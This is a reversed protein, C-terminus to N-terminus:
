TNEPESCELIFATTCRKLLLLHAFCGTYVPLQKDGTKKKAQLMKLLLSEKSGGCASNPKIFVVVARCPSFVYVHFGLVTHHNLYDIMIIKFRDM